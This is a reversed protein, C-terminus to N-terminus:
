GAQKAFRRVCLSLRSLPNLRRFSKQLLTAGAPCGKKKSKQNEVIEEWKM